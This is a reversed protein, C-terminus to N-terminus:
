AAEERISLPIEAPRIHLAWRMIWVAPVALLLNALAVVLVIKILNPSFVVEEGILALVVPYAATSAASAVGVVVMVLWKPHEITLSNIYGALFAALGYVLAHVGLPSTLVLDFMFGMVFGALAGREPGGAVGGAVALLLMAQIAVGGPRMDTLLTTQLALVPLGIMLLRLVPHRLLDLM